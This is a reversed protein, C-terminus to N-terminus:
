PSSLRAAALLPPAPKRWALLASWKSGISSIPHAGSKAAKETRRSSLWSECRTACHRFPITPAIVSYATNPSVDCRSVNTAVNAWNVFRWQWATRSIFCFFMSDIWAVSATARVMPFRRPSDQPGTSRQMECSSRRCSMPEPALPPPPSPPPFCSPPASPLDSEPCSPVACMSISSALERLISSTSVATISLTNEDLAFSESSAITSKTVCRHAIERSSIWAFGELGLTKLMCFTTSIVYKLMDRMRMTHDRMQDMRPSCKWDTARTEFMSSDIYAISEM